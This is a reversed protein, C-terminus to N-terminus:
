VYYMVTCNRTLQKQRQTQQDRQLYQSLWQTNIGQWPGSGTHSHIVSVNLPSIMSPHDANSKPNRLRHIIKIEPTLAFVFLTTVTWFRHFHRLCTTDSADVPETWTCGSAYWPSGWCRQRTSLRRGAAKHHPHDEPAIMIWKTNPKNHTTAVHKRANTEATHNKKCHCNDGKYPNEPLNAANTINRACTM